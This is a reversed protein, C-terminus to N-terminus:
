CCIDASHMGPHLGESAVVGGVPITGVPGAPCADPMVAGAKIVPTRMLAAMSAEVAGLNAREEATEAEINRFFPTQGPKSLALKPPPAHKLAAKLADERSRGAHLLARAEELAAPVWPGQPLGAAILDHGSIQSPNSDGM